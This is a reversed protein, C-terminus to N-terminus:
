QINFLRKFILKLFTFMAWGVIGILIGGKAWLRKLRDVTKISLIKEVKLTDMSFNVLFHLSDIKSSINSTKLQLSKKNLENKNDFNKHFQLYSSDIFVVYNPTMEDFNVIFNSSDAKPTHRTLKLLFDSETGPQIEAKHIVFLTAIKDISISFTKDQQDKYLEYWLYFSLAIIFILTFFIQFIKKFNDRFFDSLGREAPPNVSIM